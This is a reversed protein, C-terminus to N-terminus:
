PELTPELKSKVINKWLFQKSYLKIEETDFNPSATSATELTQALSHSNFEYVYGLNEQMFEVGAPYNSCLVPLGHAFYEFMKTSPQGSYYKTPPVHVIGWHCSSLLSTLERGHAIRGHFHVITDLAKDNALARLASLGSGDGVIHLEARLKPAALAFAELLIELKRGALAGVYVFRTQGRLGSRETKSLVVEEAGLPVVNSVAIRYKTAVSNHVVNIRRFFKAEISALTDEIIRQIKNRSVSVTRFDLIVNKSQSHTALLSIGPFYKCLVQNGLSLESRIARLLQLTRQFKSSSSDSTYVVLGKPLEIKELGLDVSLVRVRFNDALYKAYMNYDTQYGWQNKLALVITKQNPVQRGKVSGM